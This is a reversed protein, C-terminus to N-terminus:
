LPLALLITEMELPSMGGHHGWHKKEFVGDGSWWIYSHDNSLICLNGLRSKLLDSPEDGFLGQALLDAVKYVEARGALFEGLREYAEDLHEERIYLFQDRGSGGPALLVGAKNTKIWSRIEPIEKDLYIAATPDVTVQGHDATMLLLTKGCAGVLPEYLLRELTTLFADVEADFQPSDPGYNHGITDIKDYYFYFYAKGKQDRVATALNTLAEPLTTYPVITAGAGTVDTYPAPTYEKSQFIYSRVDREALRDYITSTPYMERPDIGTAALNNREKKGAFSFLLPAIMADLKPEYYFWEFVGSKDVREGTHITTVHAATTSPFQSTLKSAVGQAVVRKLFPYRDKYRDFFRWGFADVFLLVVKDFSGPESGLVEMPLMRLDSDGLLAHEITGPINAFNYSDYLPKRFDKSFVSADVAVVSAQNIM